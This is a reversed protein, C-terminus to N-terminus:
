VFNLCRKVFGRDLGIEVHGARVSLRKKIIFLTLFAHLVSKFLM